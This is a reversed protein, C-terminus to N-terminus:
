SINDLIKKLLNELTNVEDDDLGTLMMAENQLRKETAAAHHSKAKETLTIIKNRHDKEDSASTVFGNKELRSVLGTVTPHSVHLSNELARQTMHGNHDELCKLVHIQSFTLDWAKLDENVLVKISDTIQKLYLFIHNEDSM